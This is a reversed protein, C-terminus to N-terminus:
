PVRRYAVEELVGPLEPGVLFAVVLRRRTLQVLQQGDFSSGGATGPSHALLTKGSVSYTGTEIRSPMGEGMVTFQYSGDPRFAVVLHAAGGAVAQNLEAVEPNDMRELIDPPVTQNAVFSIQRLEWQGLLLPPVQAHGAAPKLLSIGLGMAWALARWYRLSFEM